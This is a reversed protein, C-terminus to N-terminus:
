KCSTATSLKAVDWPITMGANGCFEVCSAGLPTPTAWICGLKEGNACATACTPTVVPCPKTGVPCTAACGAFALTLILIANKM